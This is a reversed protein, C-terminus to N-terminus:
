FYFGGSTHLSQLLEKVKLLMQAIGAESHGAAATNYHSTDACCRKSRERKLAVTLRPFLIIDCHVLYPAYHLDSVVPINQKALFRVVTLAGLCLASDIDLFWTSSVVQSAM